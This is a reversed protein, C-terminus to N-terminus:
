PPGGAGRAETLEFNPQRALFLLLHFDSLRAWYPAARRAQLHQKLEAIGTLPRPVFRSANVTTLM